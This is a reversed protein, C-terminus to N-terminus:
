PKKSPSLLQQRLLSVIAAVDAEPDKGVEPGIRWTQRPSQEPTSGRSHARISRRDRATRERSWCQMRTCGRNVQITVRYWALGINEHSGM